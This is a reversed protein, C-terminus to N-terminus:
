DARTRVSSPTKGTWRKFTREFGGVDAFGLLFAIETISLDRRELLRVAHNRRVSDVIERHTAGHEGLWRQVTRPSARLVRATAALSPREQDRLTTAVARKVRELIADVAPLHGLLDSMYRDLVSALGPPTAVNVERDLERTEFVLESTTCRFKVPCRFFAAYPAVDRPAAHTFRVERLGADSGALERARRALWAFFCDASHAGHDAVSCRVHTTAGRRDVSTALSDCLLRYFRSMRSFADELTKSARLAYELVDYAGIATHEAVHLGFVPDGSRAAAEQWVREHIADPIRYDVEGLATEPIGVERLIAATDVGRTAAFGLIPRLVVVSATRGDGYRGRGARRGM